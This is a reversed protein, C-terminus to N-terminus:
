GYLTKNGTKVLYEETILQNTAIKVTTTTKNEQTQSQTASEKATIINETKGCAALFGIGMTMVGLKMMLKWNM